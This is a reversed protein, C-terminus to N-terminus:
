AHIADVLGPLLQSVATTYVTCSTLSLGINLKEDAYQLMVRRKLTCLVRSSLVSVFCIASVSEKLQRRNWLASKGDEGCLQGIAALVRALLRLAGDVTSGTDSSGTHWFNQELSASTTM